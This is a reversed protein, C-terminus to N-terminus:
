KDLKNKFLDLLQQQDPQQNRANVNERMVSEFLEKRMIQVQKPGVFGLKVSEGEISLVQVEINDGIIITEGIKRKLVLM